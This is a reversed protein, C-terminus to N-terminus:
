DEVVIEIKQRAKEAAKRKREAEAKQAAAEAEAKQDRQNIFNKESRANRKNFDFNFSFKNIGQKIDSATPLEGYKLKNIPSVKDDQPFLCLMSILVGAILIYTLFRNIGEFRYLGFLSDVVAMILIIGTWVLIMIGAFSWGAAGFGPYLIMILGICFIMSFFRQLGTM